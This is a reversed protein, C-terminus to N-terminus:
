VYHEMYGTIPSSKLGNQQLDNKPYLPTSHWGYEQASTQCYKSRQRPNLSSSQIARKM